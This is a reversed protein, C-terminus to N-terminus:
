ARRPEEQTSGVLACGERPPRRTRTADVGVAAERQKSPEADVPLKETRVAAGVRVELAGAILQWARTPSPCRVEEFTVAVAVATGIAEVIRKAVSAPACGATVRRSVCARTAGHGSRRQGIGAAVSTGVRADVCAGEVCAENLGIGPWDGEGAGSAAGAGGCSASWAGSQATEGQAQREREERALSESSLISIKDLYQRSAVRM